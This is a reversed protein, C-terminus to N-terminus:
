CISGSPINKVTFTTNYIGSPKYPEGFLWFRFYVYQGPQVATAVKVFSARTFMYIDTVM